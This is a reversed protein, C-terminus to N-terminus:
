SPSYGDGISFCNRLISTLSKSKVGLTLRFVDVQLKLYVPWNVAEPEFLENCFKNLSSKTSSM